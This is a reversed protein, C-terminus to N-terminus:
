PMQWLLDLIGFHCLQDQQTGTICYLWDLSGGNRHGSHMWKYYGPYVDSITDQTARSQQATWRM